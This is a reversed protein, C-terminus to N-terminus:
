RLSGNEVDDVIGQDLWVSFPDNTANSESLFCACNRALQRGGSWLVGDARDFDMLGTMTGFTNRRRRIAPRSALGALGNQRAREICHRRLQSARM